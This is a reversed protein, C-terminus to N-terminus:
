RPCHIAVYLAAAGSAWALWSGSGLNYLAAPWSDQSMYTASYCTDLGKGKNLPVNKPGDVTYSAHRKVFIPTMSVKPIAVLVSHQCMRTLTLKRGLSLQCCTQFQHLDVWRLVGRRRHGREEYIVAFAVWTDSAFLAILRHWTIDTADRLLKM